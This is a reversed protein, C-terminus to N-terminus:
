KLYMMIRETVANAARLRYVYLGSPLNGADFTVEHTGQLLEDNILDMVKRGLIDYVSLTVRMHEPLDFRITTVPNFPNPYNQYLVIRDPIGKVPDAVSVVSEDFSVFRVADVVVYTDGAGPTADNSIIISDAPSMRFDGLHNWLGNTKRQDVRVTDTGGDHSIIYPTDLARNPAVSWSAYVRYQAVAPLQPKFVAYSSGDGVKNIRTTGYATNASTIWGTGVEYYYDTDTHHYIKDFLPEPEPEPTPIVALISMVPRQWTGGSPRNILTGEVIMTSSGGGDLNIAEICGLELLTEAVEQLTMGVSATQRGDVVFLIIRGDDTYGVATRPQRSFGEIGSDFFVEETYTIHIEGSKILRPGGGVADRINEWIKGGPPYSPTPQPAPETVTNPTPQPYSYIFSGIHYVWTMDFTRDETIGFAARTPYYTGASRTVSAVNPSLLEGNKLVLSYSVNTGFYGANIAAYAGAQAAITSTAQNGGQAMFPRVTLDQVSYDVEVYWARMPPDQSVGHYLTVGEPLTSQVVEWTLTQGRSQAVVILSVIILWCTFNYHLKNAMLDLISQRIDSCLKAHTIM